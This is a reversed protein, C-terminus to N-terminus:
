IKDVQKGGKEGKEIKNIIKLTEEALLWPLSL